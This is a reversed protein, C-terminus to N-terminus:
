PLPLAQLNEKKGTVQTIRVKPLSQLGTYVQVRKYADVVFVEAITDQLHHAKGM